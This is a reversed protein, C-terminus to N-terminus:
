PGSLARDLAAAADRRLTPALHAYTDATLSIQSHGLVDQITKLPVGEVLLLSACAHRLDHFRQRPLELRVLRRQFLRTLNSGDIPTGLETTFVLGFTDPWGGLALRAAAQSARQRRLAAIAAAPLTVTRRSTASKPEVLRWAKDIRQLATRVTLIGRDLDVDKWTLGLIEGQRMGTFLAVAFLSGYWEESTGILLRQAQTATLPQIQTKVQRPPDTLAAVNREIYGWRAAQALASRLIARIQQVTRPSLGGKTCGNLFKQVDQPTLDGLANYGLAPSIHKRIYSEYGKLTSPRLRPGAVETLWATLFHDLTQREGKLDIGKKAKGLAEDRKARVEARSKGYVSKRRGHPLTFLCEWRGDKRLRFTGEHHGRHQNATVLKGMAYDRWESSSRLALPGPTRSPRRPGQVSLRRKVVAAGAPQTLHGAGCAGHVGGRLGMDLYYRAAHKCVPDGYTGAPCSCSRAIGQAIELLYAVNAQTGSNAVWMGNSNVQRVTVGEDVARHAARQWRELSAGRSKRGLFDSGPGDREERDGSVPNRRLAEM